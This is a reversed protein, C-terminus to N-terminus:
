VKKWKSFQLEAYLGGYTYKQLLGKIEEPKVVGNKVMDNIDKEAYKEPLFVIMRGNKVAEKVLKVIQKNRPQNDFVLICHANRIKKLHDALGELNSDGSAVSNEVFMSDFQGELVYVFKTFDVREFGFMKRDVTSVQVTMYRLKGEQVRLSRGAVHTTYGNLDKYFMVIRPDDQILDKGHDPYNEDMFKKFDDTYFVDEWRFEPICRGKIYDKAYHADPLDKISTLGKFIPQFPMKTKPLVPDKYSFIDILKKRKTLREGFKEMVYQKHALYDFQKLFTNFAITECGNHCTYVYHNGRAYIYGRAKFRNKQSDGCLPCSFNYLDEKKQKFNKLRSSILHLYKRDIYISM